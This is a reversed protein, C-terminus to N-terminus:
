EYNIISKFNLLIIEKLKDTEINRIQAAMKYVEEIAYESDDTELFVRSLPASEFVKGANSGSKLLAKGFSLYFGNELLQQAIEINNNYGHIIFPIGPKSIKVIRILHDFAKVCHVIVPKNVKVAIKIQEIFIQEQEELSTEAFKDLGCEGIAVVNKHTVFKKLNELSQSINLEKIKWPHIGMSFFGKEDPKKIESLNLISITERVEAKHTHFNTYPIKDSLNRSYFFAM